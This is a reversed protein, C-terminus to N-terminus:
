LTRPSGNGTFSSISDDCHDLRGSSRVHITYNYNDADDAISASSSATARCHCVIVVSLITFVTYHSLMTEYPNEPCNSM